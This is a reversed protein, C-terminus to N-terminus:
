THSEKVPELSSNWEGAWHSQDKSESPQPQRQRGDRRAGQQDAFPAADSGNRRGTDAQAAAAPRWVEAQYGGQRLKGVLDPLDARLSNALDHDPTHVTVRIEGAREAMRIDVSSEGDALHLSVDRSAPQAAPEPPQVAATRAVSEPEASVASQRDAVSSAAASYVNNMEAQAPPNKPSQDNTSRDRSPEAIKSIVGALSGKDGQGHDPPPSSQEAAASDRTGGLVGADEASSSGNDSHTAHAGSSTGSIEGKPSAAGAPSGALPAAAASAPLLTEPTLLRVGFALEGPSRQSGDRSGKLPDVIGTVEPAPAPEAPSSSGSAVVQTGVAGAEPGQIFPSAGPTTWQGLGWSSSVSAATASEVPLGAPAASQEKGFRSGATPRQAVPTPKWGDTMYGDLLSGFGRGPAIAAKGAASRTASGSALTPSAGPGAPIESSAIVDWIICEPLWLAAMSYCANVTAVAALMKGRAGNGGPFQRRGLRGFREKQAAQWRSEAHVLRRHSHEMSVKVIEAALPM